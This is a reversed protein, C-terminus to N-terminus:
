LAIRYRSIKRYLTARSMGLETAAHAVTAGPAALCRVIEDREFAEIRTLVHDTGSVVDAPLHRVDVLDSRAAADRVATRLEAVNGPWSAATLARIARPTFDVDRHRLQRAFFAALPAVDEARHRLPPAEVVTHVIDRLPGPIAEFSSATVTLPHPRRSGAADAVLQEAAWSPLTDAGAVVVGIDQAHLEPSWLALWGAVGSPRPARAVLVRGRRNGARRGLMALTTRGSGPEGVVAVLGGAALAAATEARATNWAVSVCPDDAGLPREGTLVHFVEGRPAPREQLGVSRVQMLSSTNASASQALALLLHSSTQSWTTLNICGLLQGDRPDLVPAAACTYRRLPAVFHDGGRVLAPVQDVLALALGNTGATQEDYYFGPALHVRDLSREIRHDDSWRALVLGHPDTLMVGVPEDALTTRLGRLVQAGCEFFLSGTPLQDAYVEGVEEPSVGYQESRAWSARMRGSRLLGRPASGSLEEGM